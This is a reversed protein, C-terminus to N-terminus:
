HANQHTNGENFKQRRIIQKSQLALLAPSHHKTAKLISDTQISGRLASVAALYFKASAAKREADQSPNEGRRAGRSCLSVSSSTVNSSSQNGTVSSWKLSLRLSLCSIKRIERGTQIACFDMVKVLHLIYKISSGWEPLLIITPILSQFRRWDILHCKFSHAKSIPQLTSLPHTVSKRSQTPWGSM